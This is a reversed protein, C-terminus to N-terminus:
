RESTWSPACLNVANVSAYIGRVSPLRTVTTLNIGEKPLIIAGRGTNVTNLHKTYGIFKLLDEITVELLLLLDTAQKHAFAQWCEYDHERVADMLM